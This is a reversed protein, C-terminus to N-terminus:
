TAAAGAPASLVRRAFAELLANFEAPRELMAVHGVEPLTLLEADPLADALRQSHHPPLVRDRSGAVVLSPVTLTRASGLLDVTGATRWLEGAVHPRSDLVLRRVLDIADARGDPGVGLMRTVVTALDNGRPNGEADLGGYIMRGFVSSRARQRLFTVGAALSGGGLGALVASAASNVLVVGAVQEGILDSRDALAALVAM